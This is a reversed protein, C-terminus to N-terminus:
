HLFLHIITIVAALLLLGFLFYFPRSHEEKPIFERIFVFLLIGSIGSIFIRNLIWPIPILIAVIVGILAGFSHISKELQNEEFKRHIKSISASTLGSHLAVPLLFLVAGYVHEHALEVFISGVLIYYLLFSIFHIFRLKEKQKKDKLNKYFYKEALHVMTFGLLLFLFVYIGLRDVAEFSLPLLELFLYSISVGSAFSIIRFQQPGPHIKVSEGIYHVIGLFVAFVVAIFNPNTM